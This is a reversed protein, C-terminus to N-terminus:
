HMVQSRRKGINVEKELYISDSSCRKWLVRNRSSIEYKLIDWSVNNEYVPFYVKMEEGKTSKVANLGACTKSSLEKVNPGM